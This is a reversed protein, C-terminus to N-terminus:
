LIKSFIEIMHLKREKKAKIFATVNSFSDEECSDDDGFSSAASERSEWLGTNSM